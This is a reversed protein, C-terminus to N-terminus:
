SAPWIVDDPYPETYAWYSEGAVRKDRTESVSGHDGGGLSGLQGEPHCDAWFLFFASLFLALIWWCCSELLRRM